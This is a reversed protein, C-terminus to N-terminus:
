PLAIGNTPEKPVIVNISFASGSQKQCNTCHCMATMVAPGVCTYKIAGCLCSGSIQPM